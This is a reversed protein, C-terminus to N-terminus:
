KKGGITQQAKEYNTKSVFEKIKELANIAQKQNIKKALYLGTIAATSTIYEIKQEELLKIFKKDDSAIVDAKLKKFLAFTSSEGKGLGPLQQFLIKKVSIKGEKVSTEIQYADPYLKKKGETVTEEYVSDSIVCKHKIQQLIGSRMLKILADSDFVIQKM